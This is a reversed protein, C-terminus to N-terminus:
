AAEAIAEKLQVKPLKAELKSLTGRGGGQMKPHIEILKYM